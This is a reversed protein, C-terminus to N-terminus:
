RVPRPSEIIEELYTRKFAKYKLIDWDGPMRKKMKIAYDYTSGIVRAPVGTAVSYDPISKTVIAGAGIVCHKGIYVNPMIIAGAGIFTYEDIVIKGFHNIDKYKEENRFAWNGGDHTIFAVNCSLRVNDKITIM